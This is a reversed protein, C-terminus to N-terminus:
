AKAMMSSQTLHFGGDAQTGSLHCDASTGAAEPQDYLM